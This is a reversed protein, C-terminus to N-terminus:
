RDNKRSIIDTYFEGEFLRIVDALITKTYSTETKYLQKSLANLMRLAPWWPEVSNMEANLNKVTTM